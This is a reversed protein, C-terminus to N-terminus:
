LEVRELKEAEIWQYAEVKDFSRPWYEIVLVRDVRLITLTINSLFNQAIMSLTPEYRLIIDGSRIGAIDARSGWKISHIFRTDRPGVLCSEPFGLEFREMEEKVMRLGYPELSATSPVVLSGNMMSKWHDIGELGLHEKLLQKWIETGHDQHLRRKELLTLVLQDLSSAGTTAHQIEYATKIFYVFGRYYPLEQAHPNQWAINAAETNNLHIVPNTYYAQAIQNVADKFSTLGIACFKYHLFITYYTAIGENYWALYDLARLGAGEEMIAYTHIMEHTITDKFFTEIFELEESYGLIFSRIFSSGGTSLYPNKVFFFRYSGNIDGFFSSINQFANYAYSSLGTINFTMPAESWYAEFSPAKQLESPYRSLNGIAFVTSIFEEALLNAQLPHKDSANWDGFTWIAMTGNQAQELDFVVEIPLIGNLLPMPMFGMAPGILSGHDYRLSVYPGPRTDRTVERPSSVFELRIDGNVAKGFYWCYHEPKDTCNERALLIRSGDENDFADVDLVPFDIGYVRSPMSLVAEQELKALNSITMSVAVANFGGNTSNPRPTVVVRLKTASTIHSNSRAYHQFPLLAASILILYCSFFSCILWFYM